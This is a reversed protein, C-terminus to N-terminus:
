KLLLTHWAIYQESKLFDSKINKVLHDTWAPKKENRFHAFLALSYGWEMQNLRADKGTIRLNQSTFAANANFIGLGFILTTLDILRPEPVLLNPNNGTLHPHRAALHLKIQALDRALTAVMIEPNQLRSKRLTIPYKGNENKVPHSGASSPDDAQPEDDATGLTLKAGTPSGTSLQNITDDYINLELDSPALDMQAAVIDLTDRATQPDGNYRIPFDSHHPRLVKRQRIATPDFNETLWRFSDEVWIRSDEKLPSPPATEKKFLGFM